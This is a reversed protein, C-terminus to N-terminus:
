VGIGVSIPEGRDGAPKHAIRAAVTSRTRHRTSEPLISAHASDFFRTIASTLAVIVYLWNINWPILFPILLILIARLLDSVLIIRKRDYRDVFVGSFLGTLITLGSTAVLMLGGSLVSGTARYVLISAALATLASGISSILQGIWVLIFSRNRFVAFMSPTNGTPM